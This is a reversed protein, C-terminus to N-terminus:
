VRLKMGGDVPFNGTSDYGGGYFYYKGNLLGPFVAGGNADTIKSDDYNSPDGGPFVSSGYKVYVTSGPIPLTHHKVSLTITADGGTGGRHCSLLFLIGPLLVSFRM